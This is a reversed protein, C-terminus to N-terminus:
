MAPTSRDPLGCPVRIVQQSSSHPMTLYIGRVNIRYLRDFELPTTTLISGVHAIGASNVLVDLGGTAAIQSFATAVSSDESIDSALCSARSPTQSNIEAVVENASDANLDLLIVEAGAHAFRIAIARGIGSAAGTVVIRKGDLQFSEM